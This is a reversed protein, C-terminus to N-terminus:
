SEITRRTGKGDPLHVKIKVTGLMKKLETKKDASLSVIYHKAQTIMKSANIRKRCKSCGTKTKARNLVQRLGPFANLYKNEHLMRSILNDTLIVFGTAM